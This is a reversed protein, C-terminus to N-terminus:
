RNEFYRGDAMKSKPFELKKVTQVALTLGNSHYRSKQPKELHRGGGHQNKFFEFNQRCTGKLPGIQTMICIENWNSLYPSKVPKKEFHRGDM